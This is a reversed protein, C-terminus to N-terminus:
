IPKLIREKNNMLERIVRDSVRVTLMHEYSDQRGITDVWQSESNRQVESSTRSRWHSNPDKVYAGNSLSSMSFSIAFHATCAFSATVSYNAYASNLRTQNVCTIACNFHRREYSPHADIGLLRELHYCCPPQMWTRNLIVIFMGVSSKRASGTSLPCSWSIFWYPLCALRLYHTQSNMSLCFRFSDPWSLAKFFLLSLQHASSMKRGCRQARWIWTGIIEPFCSM